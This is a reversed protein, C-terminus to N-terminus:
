GYNSLMAEFTDVWDLYDSAIKAKEKKFSRDDGPKSKLMKTVGNEASDLFRFGKSAYSSWDSGMKESVLGGEVLEKMHLTRVILRRRSLNIRHFIIRDRIYNPNEVQKFASRSLQDYILALQSKDSNLFREITSNPDGGFRAEIPTEVDGTEKFETAREELKGLARDLDKKGVELVNAKNEFKLRWSYIRVADHCRSLAALLHDTQFAVGEFAIGTQMIRHLPGYCKERFDEPKSQENHVAEATKRCVTVIRLAEDAIKPFAATMAKHDAPTHELLQADILMAQPPVDRKELAAPAEEEKCSSLFLVM